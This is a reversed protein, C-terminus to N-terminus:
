EHPDYPNPNYNVPLLEAVGFARVYYRVLRVLDRYEKKGGRYREGNKYSVANFVFHIHPYYSDEHIAYVIQYTDGIVSCIEEAIGILIRISPIEKPHFSIIFHHLRIYSNKNFANSVRMMSGAIDNEDTEVGGIFSSPTKDKRTIYTILDPIAHDDQYKGQDSIKKFIAM